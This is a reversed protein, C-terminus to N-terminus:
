RRGGAAVRFRGIEEAIAMMVPEQDTRVVIDGHVVGIDKMFAVTRKAIYSHTSKSPPAAALM